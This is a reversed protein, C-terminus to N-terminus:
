KGGRRGAPHDRRVRWDLTSRVLGDELGSLLQELTSASLFAVRSNAKDSLCCKLVGSDVFILLTAPDRPSGDDWATLTLYEWLAPCRSAFAPDIPVAPSGAGSSSPAVRSAFTAM